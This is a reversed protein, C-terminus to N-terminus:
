SRLARRDFLSYAQLTALTGDERLWSGKESFELSFGLKQPVRLSAHNEEDCYIMVKKAQLTEFALLTLAHSAQTAYGKGRETRRIFYCLGFQPIDWYTQSPAFACRGVVTQTSKHVIVYRVCERLIFAAHHRRCEEEVGIPTPPTSPWRLWRVSDEYGDMVAAYVREGWGAQPIVLELAGAEIREPIQLLLKDTEM